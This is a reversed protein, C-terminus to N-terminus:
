YGMTQMKLIQRRPWGAQQECLLIQLMMSSGDLKSFTSFYRLTLQDRGLSTTTATPLAKSFKQLCNSGHAM